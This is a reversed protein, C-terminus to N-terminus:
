NASAAALDFMLFRKSAKLAGVKMMCWRMLHRKLLAWENTQMMSAEVHRRRGSIIPRYRYAALIALSVGGWPGDLYCSSGRRRGYVLLSWVSCVNM